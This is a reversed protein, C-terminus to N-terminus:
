AGAPPPPSPASEAPPVATAGIQWLVGLWDEVAWLEAIKGDVIRHITIGTITVAKGTAPVGLLEGAHVGRGTWRTVVRDGAAILDDIEWRAPGYTAALVPLFRKMSEAGRLGLRGSRYGALDPAFLGDVAAPNRENLVAQYMRRVVAENAEEVTSM